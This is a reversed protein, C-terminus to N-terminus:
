KSGDTKDEQQKLRVCRCLFWGAPYKKQPEERYEAYGTGWCQKCNKKVIFGENLEPRDPITDSRTAKAKRM